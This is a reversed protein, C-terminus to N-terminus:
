LLEVPIGDYVVQRGHHLLAELATIEAAVIAARIISTSKPKEDYLLHLRERVWERKLRIRSICTPDLTM